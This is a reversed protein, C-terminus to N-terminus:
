SSCGSWLMARAFGYDRDGAADHAAGREFLRSPTNYGPADILYSTGDSRQVVAPGDPTTYAVDGSSNVSYLIDPFIKGKPHRLNWLGGVIAGDSRTLVGIMWDGTIHTLGLSMGIKGVPQGKRDWRKWVMGLEGTETSISGVVVGADNIDAVLVDDGQLRVPASGDGPWVVGVNGVAPDYGYGAVDGRENMASVIVSDIGPPMELNRFVGNSYLWPQDEGAPGTIGLVTGHSNVDVLRTDSGSSPELVQVKQDTWFLPINHPSNQIFGVQYRGSPDAGSLSAFVNTPTGAPLPLETAVCHSTTSAM